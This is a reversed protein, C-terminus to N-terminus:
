LVRQHPKVKRMRLATVVAMILGGVLANFIMSATVSQHLLGPFRGQPLARESDRPDSSLYITPLKQVLKRCLISDRSAVKDGLLVVTAKVSGFPESLKDIM